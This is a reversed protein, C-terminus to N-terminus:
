DEKPIDHICTVLECCKVLNDNGNADTGCKYTKYSSCSECPRTDVTWLDPDLDHLRKSRLREEYEIEKRTEDDM